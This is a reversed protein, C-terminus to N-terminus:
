FDNYEAVIDFYPSNQTSVIPSGGSSSSIEVKIVAESTGFAASYVGWYLDSALNIWVGLQASGSGNVTGSILTGRVWYSAGIGAQISSYWAGSIPYHTGAGYSTTYIQGNSAIWLKTGCAGFRSTVATGTFLPTIPAADSFVKRWTGAEKVWVEKCKRWVGSDRIHIEKAKRWTGSDKIHTETAM